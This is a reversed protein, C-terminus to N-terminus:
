RHKLASAVCNPTSPARPGHDLPLALREPPCGKKDAAAPVETGGKRALETAQKAKRAREIAQFDPGAIASPAVGMTLASILTILLKNM